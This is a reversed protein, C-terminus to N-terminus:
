MDTHTRQTAFRHTPVCLERKRRGCAERCTQPCHLPWTGEAPGPRAVRRELPWLGPRAWWGPPAWPGPLGWSLGPQRLRSGWRHSAGPSRSASLEPATRSRLPRCYRAREAKPHPPNKRKVKGPQPYPFQRISSGESPHRRGLTGM